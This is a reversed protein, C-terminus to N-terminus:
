RKLFKKKYFDMNACFIVFIAADYATAVTKLLLAVKYFCIDTRRNTQWGRKPPFMIKKAGLQSILKNKETCIGKM